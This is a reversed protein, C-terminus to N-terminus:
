VWHQPFGDSQCAHSIMMEERAFFLCSRRCCKGHSQVSVMLAGLTQPLHGQLSTGLSVGAEGRPHTSGCRRGGSSCSGGDGCRVWRRRLQSRQFSWWNAGPFKVHAIRVPSSSWRWPLLAKFALFVHTHHLASTCIQTPKLNQKKSTM